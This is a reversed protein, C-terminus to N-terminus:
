PKSPLTIETAPPITLSHIAQWARVLVQTQIELGAYFGLCPPLRLEAGPTHPSLCFCTAELSWQGVLRAPNTFGPEALPGTESRRLLNPAHSDHSLTSPSPSFPLTTCFFTYSQLLLLLFFLLLPNDWSIVITTADSVNSSLVTRCPKVSLLCHVYEELGM